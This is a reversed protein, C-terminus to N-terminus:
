LRMWWAREEDEVPNGRNRFLPVVACSGLPGPMADEGELRQEWSQGPENMLASWEDHSTRTHPECAFSSLVLGSEDRVEAITFPSLRSPRSDSANAATGEEVRGHHTRGTRFARVWPQVLLSSWGGVVLALRSPTPVSGNALLELEAESHPAMEASLIWEIRSCPEETATTGESGGAHETNETGGARETAESGGGQETATAKTAETGGRHGLSREGSGRLASAVHRIDGMSPQCPYLPNSQFVAKLAHFGLGRTVLESTDPLRSALVNHVSREVFAAAKTASCGCESHSCASSGGRFTRAGVAASLGGRFGRGEYYEDIADRARVVHHVRSASLEAFTEYVYRRVYDVCDPVYQEVPLEVFAEVLYDSPM